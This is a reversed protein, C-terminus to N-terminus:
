ASRQWNTNCRRRAVGLGVLAAIALVLSGPEPVQNVDPDVVATVDGSRVVMAFGDSGKPTGAQGGDYLQFVWAWTPDPSYELGSWYFYYPVPQLNQFNGTNTLGWGAELVSGTLDGPPHLAKNGLTNYFLSAM